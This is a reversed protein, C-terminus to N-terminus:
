NWQPGELFSLCMKKTNPHLLSIFWGEFSTIIRVHTRSLINPCWCLRTVVKVGHDLFLVMTLYYSKSM